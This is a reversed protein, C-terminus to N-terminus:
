VLQGVEWTPYISQAVIICCIILRLRAKNVDSRAGTAIFPHPYSVKTDEPKNNDKHARKLEVNITEQRVNRQCDKSKQGL